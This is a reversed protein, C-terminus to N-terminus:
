DISFLAVVGVNQEHSHLLAGVHPLLGSSDQFLGLALVRAEDTQLYVISVTHVPTTTYTHRSLPTCGAAQPLITRFVSGGFLLIMLAVGHLQNSHITKTDSHRTNNCHHPNSERNAPFYRYNNKYSNLPARYKNPIM